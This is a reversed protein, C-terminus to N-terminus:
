VGSLESIRDILTPWSMNVAGLIYREGPEGKEAALLHGRAVDEVDAFNMESGIVAPLRGRLYNGVMRTSTEGPQSRHVPVGLLYAPNVVTVEIGHREGAELAAQEGDHKSDPYALGLRDDPYETGEDAPRGDSPLGVASITSTVVVRRLGEAAAAEVAVVPAQANLRWVRELPRSGVFGATHFLMEAGRVARRMARFDLVDAKARRFKVGKLAELRDPNRYAVRVEDGRESLLRTLHAGLFGTAGTM